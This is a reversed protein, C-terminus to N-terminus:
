EQKWRWCGAGVGRDVETREEIIKDTELRLNRIQQQRLEEGSEGRTKYNYGM